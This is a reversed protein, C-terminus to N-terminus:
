NVDYMRSILIATARTALNEMYVDHTLGNKVYKEHEEAFTEKLDQIYGGFMRYMEETTFSIDHEM